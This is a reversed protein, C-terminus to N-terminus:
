HLNAINSLELVWAHQCPIIDPTLAPLQIVIGTDDTDHSSYKDSHEQQQQLSRHDSSDSGVLNRKPMVDQEPYAPSARTTKKNSLYSWSIVHPSSPDTTTTTKTENMGLMSIRTESTPQPCKLTLINNSPWKTVHAFLSNNSDSRTTYYVGVHTENQCTHWPETDYIARGNVKLWEGLHVLRDVFIPHITGDAAPGVNLLMNGNWAVVQILNHIIEPVTLYDTYSANRNYGWSTKDITLANEWKRTANKDYKGPNYRDTCTLYAGHHCLTDSGWRDNWVATDKVASQTAYWHLFQTAKWYSSPAEWEGDSWILEPQYKNVLDYLEPLTKTNVFHQTTFNNKKDQLYLPNFWEYLSHYLGFKIPRQTHPSTVTRIATALEGVLDRRPGIEM